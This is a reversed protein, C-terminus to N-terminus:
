IMQAAVDREEMDTKPFLNVTQDTQVNILFVHRRM